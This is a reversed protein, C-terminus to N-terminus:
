EAAEKAKAVEELSLGTAESLRRALALSPSRVWNEIRSVTEKTTDAKAAVDGLTLGAERRYIRLPHEAEM